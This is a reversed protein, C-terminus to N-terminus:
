EVGLDGRMQEPRGADDVVPLGSIRYSALLQEAAEVTADERVVVPDLTMVDAVRLEECRTRITAQM